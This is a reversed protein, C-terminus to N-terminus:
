FFWTSCVEFQGLSPCPLPTHCIERGFVGVVIDGPGYGRRAIHGQPEKIWPSPHIQSKPPPPETHYWFSPSLPRYLKKRNRKPYEHKYSARFLGWLSIIHHELWWVWSLVWSCGAGVALFPLPCNKQHNGVETLDSQAKADEWIHGLCWLASARHEKWGRMGLSTLEWTLDM